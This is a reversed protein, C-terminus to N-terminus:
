TIGTSSTTATSRAASSEVCPLAHARAIGRGSRIDRSHHADLLSGTRQEQTELRMDRCERGVADPEERGDGPSGAKPPASRFAFGRLSHFGGAYYRGLALADAGPRRRLASSNM